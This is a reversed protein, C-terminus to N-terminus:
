RDKSINVWFEFQCGKAFPYKAVLASKARLEENNYNKKAKTLNTDFYRKILPDNFDM